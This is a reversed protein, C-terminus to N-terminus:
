VQPSEDLVKRITMSLDKLTVPKYLFAKIGLERAKEDSIKRNFGTCLIIPIDPRLAIMKASLIDGTIDPMTMDTIVLDFAMPNKTFLDIADRSSSTTTVSYGMRMLIEEAMTAITTEDDVFLIREHGSLLESEESFEPEITQPVVPFFLTFVTGKDLESEVSIKGGFSEVIGHVIALGMGTGESPGKTTFYPEFILKLIDPSIGVGSDAITIKLYIGPTFGNLQSCTDEDLIVKILGVELIGGQDEMAHAANTLLNMFIQHIQVPNGMIVSEREIHKRIEITTPISSRILKLAEEAITSMQVPITQEESKRAFTLIQKVLDRARKGASDIQRLYNTPINGKDADMVALETYGMIASLINNFDHAIGGALTGISEMKQVHRLKAELNRQETIDRSVGLLYVPKGHEDLIPIKKTHLIRLGKLRTNITEEKIDVLQKSHLAERDKSVFFNAKESSFFDYDTKGLLEDRTYGILDEGAMNFRVFRLNEADKVFIMDPINEIIANLFQESQQVKDLLENNQLELYYNKLEENIRSCIFDKDIPKSFYGQLRGKNIAQVLPPFDSFATLIFRRTNPFEEAAIELLDTGAMGPMRQDTILVQIDQTKLIELGEHASSAIHIDYDRRFMAKFNHLNEEEDDVYLIQAKQFKGPTNM